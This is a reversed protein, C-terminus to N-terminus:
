LPNTLNVRPYTRKVLSGWLELVLRKGTSLDRTIPMAITSELAVSKSVLTLLQDIAGEVRIRDNLPVIPLMVAYIMDYMRLINNFVFQWAKDPDYSNNWLTVFEAVLHNDFPMIRCVTFYGTGLALSSVTTTPVPVAVSPLHPYFFLIPFGPNASKLKVIATGSADSEVVTVTTEVPTDGQTMVKMVQGSTFQVYQVAASAAVVNQDADYKAILIKAGKTPVGNQRVLIQCALEENEEIYIGRQDTQATLGQEAMATKGPDAAVRLTLQGTRIKDADGPLFPIDVIGASQQYAAQDYQAYQLEGIPTFQSGNMVGLQLAGFDAKVGQAGHEPMTNILDLSLVRKDLDVEAVAAGLFVPKPAAPADSGADRAGPARNVLRRNGGPAPASSASTGQPHVPQQFV